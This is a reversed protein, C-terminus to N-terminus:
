KKITKKSLKTKLSNWFKAKFIPLGTIGTPIIFVAAIFLIGIITDDYQTLASIKSSAILYLASGIFAGEIHACGGLVGMFLCMLSYNTVVNDPAMTSFFNASLIGAIGAFVGSVTVLLVRIVPVNFGLSNMKIANDRMGQIAMGYPSQSLRKIFFYCIPVILAIIFFTMRTGSYRTGMILPGKIGVVGNYGKTLKTWQLACLHILNALALTMMMFTTGNTRVSLFGFLASFGVVIILALIVCSGYSWGYTVRCIALTYGAIGAFGAQALSTLGGFGLLLNLSMTMLGMFLIRSTLYVTYNNAFSPLLFLLFISAAVFFLQIPLRLHGYGKKIM